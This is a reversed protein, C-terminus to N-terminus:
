ISCRQISFPYVLNNLVVIRYKNQGSTSSLCLLNKTFDPIGRWFVFDFITKTQVAHDIDRHCKCVNAYQQKYLIPSRNIPRTTVLENRSHSTQPKFRSSDFRVCLQWRSAMAAVNRRFSSHLGPAIVLLHAGCVRLVSQRLAALMIFSKISNLFRVVSNSFTTRQPGM